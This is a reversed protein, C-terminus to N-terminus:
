QQEPESLWAEADAVVDSLAFAVREASEDSLGVAPDAVLVVTNRDADLAIACMYGAESFTEFIPQMTKCHEELSAPVKVRFYWSHFLYFVAAARKKDKDKDKDKGVVAPSAEAIAQTIQAYTLKAKAGFWGGGKTPPNAPEESKNTEEPKAPEEPKPEVPKETEEPTAKEELKAPAETPTEDNEKLFTSQIHEVISSKDITVAKRESQTASSAFAGLISKNKSDAAYTDGYAVVDGDLRVLFKPSKILAPGKMQVGKNYETNIARTGATMVDEVGKDNEAFMALRYVIYTLAALDMTVLDRTVEPGGTEAGDFAKVFAKVVDAYSYGFLAGGDM